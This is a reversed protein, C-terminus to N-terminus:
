RQMKQMILQLLHYEGEPDVADLASWADAVKSIAERKAQSGTQAYTEQFANDIVKTYARRGMLAEKTVTEALPPRNEDRNAISADPSVTPSNDSVRRFQRVTSGGNGFSMDPALPQKQGSPRRMPSGMKTASPVRRQTARRVTSPPPSQHQIPASNIDLRKLMDEPPGQSDERIESIKRRKQTHHPAAVPPAKITDFVWEDQEEKPSLTSRYFDAVQYHLHMTQLAHECLRRMTSPTHRGSRGM